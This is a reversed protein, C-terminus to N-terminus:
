RFQISSSKRLQRLYQKGEAAFREGFLQERVDRELGTDGRAERRECLAFVEIGSPTVEPPTLGGIKTSDLVERLKASLDGSRRSIPERIAVDRLGRALALGAECNQFRSRLGEAERRRALFAADGAGRPVVLLIPRLTYEYTAGSKGENRRSIIDQIERDRVQLNNGFKGRVIQNWALDARLKRRLSNISIGAGGLAKAFQESNVRMRSAMNAVVTSVEADSIEIRYRRATQMKLREDILEDIVEQRPPSKHTSVQILRSRQAVDVATIPDGNVRVVIEQAYAPGAGAAAILALATLLRHLKKAKALMTGRRLQPNRGGAAPHKGAAMEGAQAASKPGNARGITM